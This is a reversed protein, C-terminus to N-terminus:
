EVHAAIAEFAAKYTAPIERLVGSTWTSSHQRGRQDAFGYGDVGISRCLAIVRPLHYGQSVFAVKRGPYNEAVYRCTAMSDLGHPDEAIDDLAVGNEHLYKKMVTTESWNPDRGDGSVVIPTGDRRHELAEDLRYRLYPSPTDKGWIAAGLVVLVDAEHAAPVDIRSAAAGFRWAQPAALAVLVVASSITLWRRTHKAM